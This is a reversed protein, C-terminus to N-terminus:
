FKFMKLDLCGPVLMIKPQWISILMDEALRAEAKLYNTSPHVYVPDQVRPLDAYINDKVEAELQM